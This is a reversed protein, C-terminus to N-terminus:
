PSCHRQRAEIANVVHMAPDAVSERQAPHLLLLRFLQHFLRPRCYLVRDRFGLERLLHDPRHEHRRRFRRVFTLLLLPIRLCQPCLFGPSLPPPPSPPFQLVLPDQVGRQVRQFHQMRRGFICISSITLYLIRSLSSSLIYTVTSAVGFSWPLRPWLILIRPFFIKSGNMM